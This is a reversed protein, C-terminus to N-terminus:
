IKDVSNSQLFGLSVHGTGAHLKTNEILTALIPVVHQLPLRSCGGLLLYLECEMVAKNYYMVHVPPHKSLANDVRQKQLYEIM